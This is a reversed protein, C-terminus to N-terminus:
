ATVVSGLHRFQGARPPRLTPEETSCLDQIPLTPLQTSFQRLIARFPPIDGWSILVFDVTDGVGHGM